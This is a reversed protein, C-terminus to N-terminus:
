RPRAAAPGDDQNDGDDPPISCMYEAVLGGALLALAGVVTAIAMVISGVPPVVSRTLLFVLVGASAGSLLAGTITSAKALVAIRAAYFPDVRNHERDRVTKRVPIAFAIALVGLVALAFAFSGPPVIVASGTAALAIELLWGAAGGIAAFVVLTTFGTRRM